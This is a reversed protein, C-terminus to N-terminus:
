LCNKEITQIKKYRKAIENQVLFRFFIKKNENLKLKQYQILLADLEQSCMVTAESSYGTQVATSIMESRKHNIKNLLRQECKKDNESM